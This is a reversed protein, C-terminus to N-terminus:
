PWAVIVDGPEAHMEFAVQGALRVPLRTAGPDPPRGFIDNVISHSECTTVSLTFTDVLAEGGLFKTIRCPSNVIAQYCARDVKSSSRFQKLAIAPIVPELSWAAFALAALDGFLATLFEILGALGGPHSGIPATGEISFLEASIMPKTPDFIPMINTRCSFRAPAAPADTAVAIQAMAKPWGWIERGSVLGIDVNIFIYPAWLVLRRSLPDDSRSEILPVWFECERVPLFGINEVLSGCRAADFFTVLTAPAAVTYSVKDRTAPTLLDDVLNQMSAQSAELVFSYGTAGTFYAPPPANIEGRRLFSIFGPSASM